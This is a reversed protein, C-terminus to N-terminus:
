LRTEIFKHIHPDTSEMVENYVELAKTYYARMNKKRTEPHDLTKFVEICDLYRYLDLPVLEWCHFMFLIDINKGKSDSILNMLNDDLEEKQHKYADEFVLFTNYLSDIENMHAILDKMETHRVFVRYVGQKWGILKEPQIVPVDQYSEHDVTDVILVKMGKKLYLPILGPINHKEEGKLYATKGSDRMGLILSVTNPNIKDM